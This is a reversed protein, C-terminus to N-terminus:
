AAVATQLLSLHFNLFNVVERWLFSVVKEMEPITVATMNVPVCHCSVCTRGALYSSCAREDIMMRGAGARRLRLFWEDAGYGGMSRGRIPWAADAPPPSDRNRGRRCPDLCDGNFWLLPFSASPNSSNCPFRGSASPPLRRPRRHRPSLPLLPLDSISYNEYLGRTQIAIM